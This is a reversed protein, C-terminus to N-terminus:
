CIYTFKGISQQINKTYIDQGGQLRLEDSILAYESGTADPCYKVRQKYPVREFEFFLTTGLNARNGLM